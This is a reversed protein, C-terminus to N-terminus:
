GDVCGQRRAPTCGITGLATARTGHRTRKPPTPVIMWGITKGCRKLRCGLRFQDRASGDRRRTRCGRGVLRLRARRIGSAARTLGDMPRWQTSLVVRRVSCYPAREVRLDAPSLKALERMASPFACLSEITAFWRAFAILAAATGVDRVGTFSWRPAGTRRNAWPRAPAFSFTPKVSAASSFPLLRCM